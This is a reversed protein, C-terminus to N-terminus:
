CLVLGDLLLAGFRTGSGPAPVARVAATRRGPPAQPASEYQPSM